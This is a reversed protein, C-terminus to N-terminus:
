TIYRQSDFQLPVIDLISNLCHLCKDTMCKEELINCCMDELVEQYSAPFGNMCKLSECLRAFNSHIQCVCVNHPINRILKVNPPRLNVFKSKGVIDDGNAESRYVAYAESLSMQLYCKQISIKKNDGPIRVVMSDSKGPSKYTIDDRLYFDKVKKEMDTEEHIKPKNNDLRSATAPDYKKLIQLIVAKKKQYIKQCFRKLKASRKLFHKNPKTNYPNKM